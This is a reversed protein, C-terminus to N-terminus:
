NTRTCGFAVCRTECSLKPRCSLWRWARRRAIITPIRSARIYSSWGSLRRMTREVRLRESLDM